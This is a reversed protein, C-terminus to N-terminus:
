ITLDQEEQLQAAQGFLASMVMLLLGALLFAPAFLTNYTYLPQTSRYCWLEVALRVVAAASVIWCSIAARKLSHANSVRFPDGALVTDLINRGQRLLVLTCCGCLLFFASYLFYRVNGFMASWGFISYLLLSMQIEDEGLPKIGVLTLVYHELVSPLGVDRFMVGIPVLWLAAINLVILVSVVRRLAKALVHIDKRKM